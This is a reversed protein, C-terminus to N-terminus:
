SGSRVQLVAAVAEMVAQADGSIHVSLGDIKLRFEAPPDSPPIIVLRKQLMDQDDGKGINMTADEERQETSELAAAPVMVPPPSEPAASEVPADGAGIPTAVAEPLETTSEASDERTAESPTNTEAEVPQPTRVRLNNWAHATGTTKPANPHPGLRYEQDGVHHIHKSKVMDSLAAALNEIEPMANRMRDRKAFDNRRIFDLIRAFPAATPTDWVPVPLEGKGPLKYENRAVKVITGEKSMSSLRANISGANLHSLTAIIHMSDTVKGTQELVALIDTDITM